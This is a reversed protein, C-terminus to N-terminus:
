KRNMVELAADEMIALKEFIEPHKSKKIRMLRLTSEIETRIIGLYSGSMSNIRWCRRLNLFVIVADWNEPWVPFLGDDDGDDNKVSEDHAEIAAQWEEPDALKSDNYTSGSPRSAWHRAAEILKKKCSQRSQM